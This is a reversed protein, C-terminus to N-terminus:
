DEGSSRLQVRVGGRRIRHGGQLLPQAAEEITRKRIAEIGPRSYEPFLDLLEYFQHKRSDPILSSGTMLKWILSLQSFHGLTEDLDFVVVNTCPPIM